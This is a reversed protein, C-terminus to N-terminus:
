PYLVLTKHSRWWVIMDCAVSLMRFINETLRVFTGGGFHVNPLYSHFSLALGLLVCSVFVYLSILDSHGEFLEPTYQPRM